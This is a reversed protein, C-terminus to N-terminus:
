ISNPSFLLSLSNGLSEIMNTFRNKPMSRPITSIHKKSVMLYNSDNKDSLSLQTDLYNESIELNKNYLISKNESLNKSSNCSETDEDMLFMFDESEKQNIKNRKESVFCNKEFWENRFFLEWTIRKKPEKELLKKVLNQLIISYHKNNTLLTDKNQNYRKINSVLEYLNAGKVPTKKFMMEYLIVGVSWLDALITYQKYNLIEPAMYLPSGCITQTMTDDKYIKAFGFDSIKIIKECTVLINQPKLDRHIIKNEYLYQLGSKLQKMLYQIDYESMDPHEHYMYNKLDGFKCYNLILHYRNNTIIVDLLQIINEHKLSQLVKIERQILQENKINKKKIMKVAIEKSKNNSLVGRYIKSFSGKGIKNRYIIYDGLAYM